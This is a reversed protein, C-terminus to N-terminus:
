GWNIRFVLTKTCFLITCSADKTARQSNRWQALPILAVTEAQGGERDAQGRRM